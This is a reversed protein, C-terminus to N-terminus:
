SSLCVGGLSCLLQQNSLMSSGMELAPGLPTPQPARPWELVGLKASKSVEGLARSDNGHQISLVSALSIKFMQSCM